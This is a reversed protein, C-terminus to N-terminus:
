IDDLFASWSSVSEQIRSIPSLFLQFFKVEVRFCVSATSFRDDGTPSSRGEEPGCFFCVRCSVSTSHAFFCLLMVDLNSLGFVFLGYLFTSYDLEEWAWCCSHIGVLIERKPAPCSPRKPSKTM